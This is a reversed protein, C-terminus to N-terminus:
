FMNGVLRLAATMVTAVGENTEVNFYIMANGAINLTAASLPIQRTDGVALLGTLAVASAIEAGNSTTGVNITAPTAPVGTVTLVKVILHTPAFRKGVDGTLQVSAETEDVILDLSAIEATMTADNVRNITTVQAGTVFGAAGGAIANAHLTGGLQDGHAHAHDDNAPRPSTGAAATGIAAPVAASPAKQITYWANSYWVIIDGTLFVTGTNTYTAGANDTCGVTVRYVHGTKVLALLPFDTNAAIDGRFNFPYQPALINWSAGNWQITDGNTFIQSTNTKTADNDVVAATVLYCHGSKVGTSGTLAPFSAANTVVGKYQLPNTLASGTKIWASGDWVVEDGALFATGTNTYTAGANDTVDATIHYMWGAQVLAVLPFSTNVAISGKYQLPSTLSGGPTIATSLAAFLPDSPTMTITYTCAGAVVLAALDTQIRGFQNDSIVVTGTTNPLVTLIFPGETPFNDQLVLTGKNSPVSVALTFM